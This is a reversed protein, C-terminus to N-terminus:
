RPELTSKDPATATFLLLLDNLFQHGKSTSSWQNHQKKLFGQSKAQAFLDSVTNFQIGTKHFLEQETFGSKTRLYNMLFDLILTRKNAKEISFFCDETNIVSDMYKKPSAKKEYRFIEGTPRTYKGHAGAGIAVFDGYLWYNLNHVCQFGPKSFASIEYQQYGTQEFINKGKNCMSWATEHDPLDPKKLYYYTGPEITLEYFSIHEPSLDILQRLDHDFQTSTQEPLGFMVDLNINKFGAKRAHNYLQITQSENHLRGINNLIKKSFTQAGVSLRNIGLALYRELNDPQGIGPNMELTIEIGDTFNCEEHINDLLTKFADPPFMNPTGGGFYISKLKLSSNSFTLTKKLDVILASVYESAPLRNNLKYSNFDCYPCKSQCWPFHVYM